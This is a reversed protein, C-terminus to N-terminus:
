PCSGNGVPEEISNDIYYQCNLYGGSGTRDAYATFGGTVTISYDWNRESSRPILLKLNSNIDAIASVTGSEPYYKDNQLKYIKEADSILKLTAKAERACAHEKAKYYNPFTIAALILIIIVALLLEVLTFAASKSPIYPEKVCLNMIM